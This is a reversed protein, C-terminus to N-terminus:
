FDVRLKAIVCSVEDNPLSQVQNCPGHSSLSPLFSPISAAHNRLGHGGPLMGRGGQTFNICGGQLDSGM